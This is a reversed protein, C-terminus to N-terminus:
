QKKKVTYTARAVREFRNKQLNLLITTEKVIRKKLVEKIIDDKHMPKGATILVEEIVEEVVGKNYGWEKLAYIGRGILVFRDDRILENHVAQKTVTKKNQDLSDIHKAIDNFHLPKQHKRLIYYTKDRISKPNIDRWHTLGLHGEETRIINKALSIVAQIEKENINISLRDRLNSLFAKEEIPKNESQLMSTGALVIREIDKLGIKVSIGRKITATENVITFLPNLSVFFTLQNKLKSSKNGAGLFLDYLLTNTVLGGEKEIHERIIHFAKQTRKENKACEVLKKNASKEIQRVRERTIHLGHGIEELTKPHQGDLGHRSILVEKDREKKLKPYAFLHALEEEVDFGRLKKAEEVEVIRDFISVADSM